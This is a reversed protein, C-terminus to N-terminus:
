LCEKKFVKHGKDDIRYPPTCSPKLGADAAQPPPPELPDPPPKAAKEEDLRSATEIRGRLNPDFGSGDDSGVVPLPGIAKGSTLDDLETALTGADQATPQVPNTADYSQSRCACLHVFLCIVLYSIAFSRRRKM